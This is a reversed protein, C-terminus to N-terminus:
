EHQLNFVTSLHHKMEVLRGDDVGSNRHPNHLGLALRIVNIVDRRVSGPRSLFRRIVWVGLTRELKLVHVKENIILITRLNLRAGVSKTGCANTSM